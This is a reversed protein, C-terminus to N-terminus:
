WKPHDQWRPSRHSSLLDQLTLSPLSKKMELPNRCIKLPAFPAPLSGQNEACWTSAESTSTGYIQHELIQVTVLLCQLRVYIIILIYPRRSALGLLKFACIWWKNGSGSGDALPIIQVPHRLGILDLCALYLIVIGVSDTWRSGIM